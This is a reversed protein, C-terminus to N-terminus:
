CTKVSVALEVQNLKYFVRRHTDDIAIVGVDRQSEKSGEFTMKGSFTLTKM